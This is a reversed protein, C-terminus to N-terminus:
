HKLYYIGPVVDGNINNIIDQSSNGGSFYQNIEEWKGNILFNVKYEEGQREIKVATVGEYTVKNGHGNAKEEFQKRVADQVSGLATPDKVEEGQPPEPVDGSGNPRYDGTDATVRGLVVDIIGDLHKMLGNEPLFFHGIVIVLSFILAVEVTLVGLRLKVNKLYKNM